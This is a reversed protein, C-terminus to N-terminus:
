GRAIARYTTMLVDLVANTRHTAATRAGNAALRTAITEDTLVRALAHGLAGADRAPVLLGNVEDTVLDGVGGVNTSVVPVHQAMAELLSNPFGEDLSALVSVDLLACPLSDPRVAGVFRTQTNIGFANAEQELQARLEGDGFIALVASPVQRIVDRWARLLTHHDKVPVLRAVCGAVPGDAPLQLALRGRRREDATLTRFYSEPLLNPVYVPKAGFSEARVVAELSPSNVLVADAASQAFANLRHLGPRVAYGTWRRSALLPLRWLSLRRVGAGVINSYVCHAHLLQLNRARAARRIQGTAHMASRSVLGRLPVHILEVGLQEYRARLPGDTQFHFVTVSVSRGVLAEAVKIANLESGGIAFADILFGIRLPNPHLPSL